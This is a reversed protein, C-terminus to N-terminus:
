PQASEPAPFRQKLFPSWEDAVDDHLYLYVSAAVLEGNGEVAVFATGSSPQETVLLYARAVPTERVSAVTGTLTPVGDGSAAFAAGATLDGPVGLADCITSWAVDRPGPVMATPIRARAHRGPFTTRQLRLHDLFLQWGETMGHYQDDWEEGEGFGSNVLSVVCTGGDKAEVLWEFALAQEGGGEFVVRRPPDWATVRGTDQGYDPGWDFTVAGGEREEVAMPIFWSSIGPGTAIAEWVEEPTGPVEVALEIKRDSM